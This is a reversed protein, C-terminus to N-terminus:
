RISMGIERKGGGVVAWVMAIEGVVLGRQSGAANGTGARVHGTGDRM